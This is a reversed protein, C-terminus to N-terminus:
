GHAGRREIAVIGGFRRMCKNHTLKGRETIFVNGQGAGNPVIVEHCIWCFEV